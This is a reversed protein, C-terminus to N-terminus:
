NCATISSFVVFGVYMCVIGTYNPKTYIMMICMFNVIVVVIFFILCVIIKQAALGQVTSAM